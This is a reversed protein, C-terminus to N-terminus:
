ASQSNERWLLSSPMVGVVAFLEGSLSISKGVLAPDGSFRSRWLRDSVVVERVGREHLLGETPFGPGLQPRVGLVQFLNRSTEVADIRLPELGPQVLTMEPRWWVAADIFVQDLSRYDLFTVPSVPEHQLAKELNTDWIMVLRDADPYPLPRLLVDDLVSFIATAAGTGLGLTFVATLTFAPAGRMIRVGFRLDRLLRM